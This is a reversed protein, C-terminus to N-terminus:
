ETGHSYLDSFGDIHLRQQTDEDLTMVIALEYPLVCETNGSLHRSSTRQRSLQLQHNFFSKGRGQLQLSQDENEKSLRLNDYTFAANSLLPILVDVDEQTFPKETKKRSITLVGIVENITKLPMCIFSKTAYHSRSQRGFRIDTEIDEVLLPAKNIVAYKAISDAFNARDGKKAINGMGISAEIVFVDRKPKELIMVSGIDAGALKLARELTIYLLDTGHRVDYLM